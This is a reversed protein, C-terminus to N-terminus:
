EKEVIDFLKEFAGLEEKHEITADFAKLHGAFGKAFLGMQFLVLIGTILFFRYNTFFPLIIFAMTLVPMLRIFWEVWKHTYVNSDAEAWDLLHKPDHMRSNDSMGEAQFEQRWELKDALETIAKQREHIINVDKYPITLVNKLMQRGTYTFTNNIWQFASARGFIDLDISYQHEEDRFEGGDDTFDVWRGEVRELSIRNIKMLNGARIKRHKVEEHRIILCVFTIISAALLLVGYIPYKFFLLLVGGVIGAFALFRLNSILNYRQEEKSYEASYKIFLEQYVQHANNKQIHGDNKQINL